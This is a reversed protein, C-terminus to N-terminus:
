YGSIHTPKLNLNTSPNVLITRLGVVVVVVLVVVVVVCVCVCVCM